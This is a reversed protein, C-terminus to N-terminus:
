AYGGDDQITGSTLVSEGELENIGPDLPQLQGRSAVVDPDHDDRAGPIREARSDVKRDKRLKLPCRHRVLPHERVADMAHRESEFVDVLRDDRGHATGRHAGPKVHGQQAVHPDGALRRHQRLAVDLDPQHGSVAAGPQEGTDHPRRLGHFQQHGAIEHIGLLRQPEPHDVADDGVRVYEVDRVVEGAPDRGGRRHLDRHDPPQDPLRLPDVQASV